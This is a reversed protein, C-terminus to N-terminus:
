RSRSRRARVIRTRRAYHVPLLPGLALLWFGYHLAPWYHTARADQLIWLGIFLAPSWGAAVDAAPTGDIVGGGVAFGYVASALVVLGPHRSTRGLIRLRAGLSTM